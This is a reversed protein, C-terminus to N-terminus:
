LQQAVKDLFAMVNNLGRTVPTQATEAAEIDTGSALEMLDFAHGRGEVKELLVEIGLKKLAQAAHESQEVGVADDETGHILATPPYNPSLGAAIPFFKRHQPQIADLGSKRIQVALGQVGTLLEPYLAAEHMARVLRFRPDKSLDFGPNHEDIVNVGKAEAIEELVAELNSLPPAKNPPLGATIYRPRALDNMGYVSMVGIPQPSTLQSATTTALYGGASAGAIIVRKTLNEQVYKAADLADSLLEEGTAEPLLRYSPSVFAWNRRLAANVLWTPTWVDKGGFVLFGGHYHIIATDPVSGLPTVVDLTLDFSGVRKFVHTQKEFNHAYHDAM